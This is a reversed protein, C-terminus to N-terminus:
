IGPGVWLEEGLLTREEIGVLNMSREEKKVACTVGVHGDALTDLEEVCQLYETASHFEDCHLVLIM